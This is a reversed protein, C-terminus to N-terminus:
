YSLMVINEHGSYFIRFAALIDRGILGHHGQASYNGEIVPLAPIHQVNAPGPILLDIDYTACQHPTTGTSPTLISMSGTPQLGLRNIVAVDISSISAGTDILLSAPVADPVVLGATQLAARRAATVAAIVQLLAGRQDILVTYHPM